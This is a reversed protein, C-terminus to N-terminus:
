VLKTGCAVCFKAGPRNKVGCNPCFIETEDAQQPTTNDMKQSEPSYPPEGPKTSAPPQTSQTSYPPQTPRTAAGMPYPQYPFTSTPAQVIEAMGAIKDKQAFIIWVIVGLAIVSVINAILITIDGLLDLGILYFIFAVIGGVLSAYGYVLFSESATINFIKYGDYARKFAMAKVIYSGILLLFGLFVMETFILLVTTVIDLILYIFILNGGEDIKKPYTIEINRLTIQKASKKFALGLLVFVVIAFVLYILALILHSLFETVIDLVLYIAM